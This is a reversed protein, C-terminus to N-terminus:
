VLINYKLCIGSFGFTYDLVHSCNKNKVSSDEGRLTMFFNM